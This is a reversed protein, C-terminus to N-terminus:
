KQPFKGTPESMVIYMKEALTGDARLIPLVTFSHTTASKSQAVVVVDKAGKFDLTRNKIMEKVFGSQDANVVAHLPFDVILERAEEVFKKGKALIDGKNANNVTSVIKTLRRQTIGY